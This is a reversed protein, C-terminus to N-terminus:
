QPANDNGTIGHSRLVEAVDESPPRSPVWVGTQDAGADLPLRVTAVWDGDSGHHEGSGVTAYGLPTGEFNADRADLEGGHELLVRVTEADGASAAAHLPTEGFSNRANPSFGLELMLRVAAAAGSRAVDVIAARDYGSLRDRLEPLETLLREAGARDGRACAGVFRDIDTADEPAGHRRLAAAIQENGARVAQRLPSLGDPDLKAPNAGAALM